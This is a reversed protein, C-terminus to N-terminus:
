WVVVAMSINYSTMTRCSYNIHPYHTKRSLYIIIRSIRIIHELYVLFVKVKAVMNGVKLRVVHHHPMGCVNFYKV